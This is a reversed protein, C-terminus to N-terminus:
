AGSNQRAARKRISDILQEAQRAAAAEDSRTYTTAIILKCVGCLLDLPSTFHGSSDSGPLRTQVLPQIRKCEPCYIHDNVSM